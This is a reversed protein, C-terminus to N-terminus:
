RVATIGDVSRKALFGKGDGGRTSLCVSWCYYKREKKPTVSPDYRDWLGRWIRLHKSTSDLRLSSECRVYNPNKFSEVRSPDNIYSWLSVTREKAQFEFRKAECDFLFTGFRGSYVHENICLLLDENFEFATPFQQMAQYVCDLWLIFVPSRQDDNANTNDQGFRRRFQHGFSCWEKEILIEFGVLTRYYPDLMLETGAVMQATRDWGDSCHSLISCGNDELMEVSRAIACLITRVQEYWKADALMRFFNDDDGKYVDPNFLDSMKQMSERAAHINAINMFFIESGPYNAPNETGKGMSQNGMAAIYSRADVFYYRKASAGCCSMLKRILKEDMSSRKLKLCVMPQASRCLVANTPPHRWVPVPM